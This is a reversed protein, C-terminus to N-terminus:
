QAVHPQSPLSATTVINPIFLSAVEESLSVEIAVSLMHTANWRIFSTASKKLDSRRRGSKQLKREAVQGAQGSFRIHGVKEIM